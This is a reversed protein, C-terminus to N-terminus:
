KEAATPTAVTPAAATPTSATLAAASPLIIRYPVQLKDWFRAPLPESFGCIRCRRSTSAPGDPPVLMGVCGDRPCVFKEVFAECAASDPGGRCSPCACDFCYFNSLHDHRWEASADKLTIYSISLEAGAPVGHLTRVSILGTIDPFRSCNPVCSHNFFSAIPFVASALCQDQLDWIGFCNCKERYFLDMIEEARLGCATEATPASDAAAPVPSSSSGASASAAAAAPALAAGGGGGVGGGAAPLAAAVMAMLHKTMRRVEDQTERRFNQLTM